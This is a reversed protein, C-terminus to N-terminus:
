PGAKPWCYCGLYTRDEFSLRTKTAGSQHRVCLKLDDSLQNPAGTCTVATEREEQTWVCVLVERGLPPPQHSCRAGAVWGLGSEREAWSLLWACPPNAVRFGAECLLPGSGANQFPAEEEERTEVLAGCFRPRLNSQPMPLHWASHRCDGRRHGDSKTQRTVAAKSSRTGRPARPYPECPAEPKLALSCRAARGKKAARWAAKYPAM